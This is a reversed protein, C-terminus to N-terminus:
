RAHFFNRYVSLKKRFAIDITLWQWNNQYFSSGGFIEPKFVALKKLPLIESIQNHKKYRKRLANVACVM